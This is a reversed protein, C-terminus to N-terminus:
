DEMIHKYESYYKSSIEKKLGKKTRGIYSNSIKEVKAIDLDTWGLSEKVIWQFERRDKYQHAIDKVMKRESFKRLINSEFPAAEDPLNKISSEGKKNPYEKDLSICNVLQNSSNYKKRFVFSIKNHIVTTLYPMLPINKDACESLKEMVVAYCEDHLENYFENKSDVNRKLLQSDIFYGIESSLQKAEDLSVIENCIYIRHYLTEISNPKM